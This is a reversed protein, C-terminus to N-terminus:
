GKVRRRTTLAMATVAGVLGAAVRAGIAVATVDAHKIAIGVLAWVIVLLYAVDRRTIGVIASLVVTVAIMILAWVQATGDPIAPALAAIATTVNAITAVTIWGLYLSFPIDVCWREAESAPQIRGIGLRVYIAILTALLVLMVIVTVAFQEHHWFWLWAMNAVGSLAFLCGVARLRPNERRAAGLQYIAFALWGVYILGWISFVYGAPVFYVAFRNSIEGTNLGNLPLANALVNFAITVVAALLNM